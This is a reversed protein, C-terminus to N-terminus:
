KKSTSVRSVSSSKNKKIAGRITEDDGTTNTTIQEANVNSTHQENNIMGKLENIQQQLLSIQIDKEDREILETLEYSKIEGKPNKVWLVSMDKTFYPTDTVVFAKQVDDISTAYKMGGQNTPAIQFNQTLNTPQPQQVQTRLRELEAIQRNINDLNAQQYPNNFM